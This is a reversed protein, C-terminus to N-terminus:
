FSWNTGLMWVREPAPVGQYNAPRFAPANYTKNFLNDLHLYIDLAPLWHYNLHVNYITHGGFRTTETTTINAPFDQENPDVASGQYNALLSATWGNNEYSLSGGFLSNSQTHIEGVSDFIHTLAIRSQWHNNWQQQWELELGAVTLDSNTPKRKLFPASTISDVIADQARTDFLTASAFGADLVHVWALEFTKATEPRLDPNQVITVQNMVRSELGTPARFAESYLLKVSDNAGIQQVLAFRPSNHGGFDSYNDHRLGLTLDLSKNLALQLQAFTGNIYRGNEVAQLVHPSFADPNALTGIHSSTDTLEPNRWEWGFLWRAAAEGGQLVWQSGFEKEVIGGEYFTSSDATIAARGRYFKHSNFVHGELLLNDAIDKQWGVNVSDVRTDFYSMSDTYGVAYFEQTDRSAARAALSFKGADGSWEGRLYFDDVRYPDQTERDTNTTPNYLTQEQGKSQATSAYVDLHASDNEAHWQLSTHRRQDNGVELSLERKSQTVINIVGTLANSGYIASGPGRIFEIREVNELSIVSDVIGAGGHWDPNLRQGDMLILVEAGSNGASRGRASINRALSSVDSRYSQYGPVYNVLEALNKLGLRRIDTRTYVTMSAPVTRLNEETLTSSTVKVSLLDEISMDLFNDESNTAAVVPSTAFVWCCIPALSTKRLALYLFNFGHVRKLMATIIGHITM